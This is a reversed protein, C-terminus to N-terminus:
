TTMHSKDQRTMHEYKGSVSFWLKTRSHIIHKAFQQNPLEVSKDEPEWVHIDVRVQYWFLSLCGYMFINEEEVRNIHNLIINATRYFKFLYQLLIWLMEGFVSSIKLPQSNRLNTGETLQVNFLLYRNLPIFTMPMADTGFIFSPPRNKRSPCLHTASLDHGTSGVQETCLVPLRMGHDWTMTLIFFRLESTSDFGILWTLSTYEGVDGAMAWLWAWGDSVASWSFLRMWVLRFHMCPEM